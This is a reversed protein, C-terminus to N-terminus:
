LKELSTLLSTLEKFGEDYEWMSNTIDGLANLQEESPKWRSQIHLEGDPMIVMGYRNLLENESDARGSIYGELHKACDSCDKQPCLNKLWNIETQIAKYVTCDKKHQAQWCLLFNEIRHIHENDKISWKISKQLDYKEPNNIVDQRGQFVGDMKAAARENSILAELAKELAEDYVINKEKVKIM